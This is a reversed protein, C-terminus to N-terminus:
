KSDKPIFKDTIVCRRLIWYIAFFMPYQYFDVHNYLSGRLHSPISFILLFALVWLGLSASERARQYILAIVFFYIFVLPLGFIFYFNLYLDAEVPWQETARIEWAAPFYIDTLMHNMDYYLKPDSLGFPTLFKNFPLFFTQMFSSKFDSILMLLNDLTNFYNLSYPLLDGLSMWTHNRFYLGLVFVGILSFGFLMSEKDFLKLDKLWPLLALSLIIAIFQKSGHVPSTIFLWCIFIIFIFKGGTKYSYYGILSALLITFFHSLIVYVGSGARNLFADGPSEFWRSFGGSSLIIMMILLTCTMFLGIIVLLEKWKLAKKPTHLISFQNVKPKVYGASSVGLTAFLHTLLVMTFAIYSAYDDFSHAAHREAFAPAVLFFVLYYVHVITLPSILYVPRFMAVILAYCVLYTSVISAELLLSLSMGMLGIFLVGLAKVAQM